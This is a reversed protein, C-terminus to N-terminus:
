ADSGPEDGDPAALASFEALKAELLRKDPLHRAYEAVLAPSMTRALAYEVVEANRTACLLVGISPREHPKRVDRDLAELYFELQGLHAPEFETAKLEFAVLAQLERHYFLLDVFFDRTGVQLRYREGVFCFDRGLELLFRRMHAVLGRHLDSEAHREPLDLFDVLYRDRFIQEVEPHAARLAAATKPPDLVAREFLAANMQRELERKTWRERVAMGLYFEREEPRKARGLILLHHSWALQRVLPAVKEDGRYTEHFQRMRFLNARTFGKLDPHERALYAALQAVVGEGWAASEVKQSIYAGVRWYLDILTTNVAQHAAARAAQIMAAVEAFSADPAGVGDRDTPGSGRRPVPAMEAREKTRSPQAGGAAKRPPM